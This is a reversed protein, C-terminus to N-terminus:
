TTFSAAMRTSLPPWAPMSWRTTTLAGSASRMVRTIFRSLASSASTRARTRLWIVSSSRRACAPVTMEFSPRVNTSGCTSANCSRKSCHGRRHVFAAERQRLDRQHEAHEANDQGKHAVEAYRGRDHAHQRDREMEPPPPLLLLL